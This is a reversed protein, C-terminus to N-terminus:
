QRQFPNVILGQQTASPVIDLWKHHFMIIHSLLIHVHIHLQTVMSYLLFFIINPFNVNKFLLYNILRWLLFFLSSLGLILGFHQELGSSSKLLSSLILDPAPLLFSLLMAPLFAISFTSGSGWSANHTWTWSHPSLVPKGDWSWMQRQSVEALGSPRQLIPSVSLVWRM